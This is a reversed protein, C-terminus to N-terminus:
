DSEIARRTRYDALMQTLTIRMLQHRGTMSPTRSARHTRVNVPVLGYALNERRGPPRTGTTMSGVNTV